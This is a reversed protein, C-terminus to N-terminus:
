QSLLTSSAKSNLSIENSCLLNEATAEATLIHMPDLQLYHVNYYVPDLQIYMFVTILKLAQINM